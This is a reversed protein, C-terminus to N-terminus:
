LIAMSTTTGNVQLTGNSLLVGKNAEADASANLKRLVHFLQYTRLRGLLLQVKELIHQLKAHKVTNRLILAQIILRSDGIIVLDQVNQNIAQTLGQWLALAEARNNTETGLGWAYTIELLGNPSVLVGGGGAVGPNGKSAGDFFLIHKNRKRKWEEFDEEEKRIEWTEQKVKSGIQQSHDRIKFSKIWQEEEPELPGSIKAKCFYPASEGFYAKIKTAVQAPNSTTERFLKNNRELWIKWLIFKPLARWLTSLQGKKTAQFPCQSSWNRLLISTEQPIAITGPKLGLVL